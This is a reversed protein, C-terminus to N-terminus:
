TNDIIDPIIEKLESVFTRPDIPKTLFHRFGAATARRKYYSTAFATLAITPITDLQPLSRILRIFDWGNVGPMAIDSFILDPVETRAIDFGERGNMATFVTSGQSEFILKLIQRADPDDDIVLIRLSAFDAKSL